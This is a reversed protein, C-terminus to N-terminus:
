QGAPTVKIADITAAEGSSATVTVTIHHTAQSSTGDTTSDLRVATIDVTFDGNYPTESLDIGPDPEYQPPDHTTDFPSDMVHALEARALAEATQFAPSAEAHSHSWNAGTLVGSVVVALLLAAIVVEIVTHGAGNVIRM